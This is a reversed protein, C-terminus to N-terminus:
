NSPYFTKKYKGRSQNGEETDWGGVVEAAKTRCWSVMVSVVPDLSLTVPENIENAKRQVDAVVDTFISTTEGPVRDQGEIAQVFVEYTNTAEFFTTELLKSEGEFVEWEERNPESGIVERGHRRVEM